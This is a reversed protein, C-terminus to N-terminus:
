CIRALYFCFVIHVKLGLAFDMLCQYIPITMLNYGIFEAIGSSEDLTFENIGASLKMAPSTNMWYCHLCRIATIRIEEVEHCM